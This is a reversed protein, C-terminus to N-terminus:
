CGWTWEGMEPIINREVYRLAIRLKDVQELNLDFGKNTRRLDGYNDGREWEYIRILGEESSEDVSVYIGEGIPERWTKNRNLYDLHNRFLLQRLYNVHYIPLSLGDWYFGFAKVREFLCVRPQRERNEDM